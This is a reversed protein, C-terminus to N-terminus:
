DHYSEKGCKDCYKGNVNSFPKGTIPSTGWVINLVRWDCEHNILNRFVWMRFTLKYYWVFDGVNQIAVRWATHKRWKIEVTNTKLDTM